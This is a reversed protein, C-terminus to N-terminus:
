LSEITFADAGFRITENRDEFVLGLPAGDQDLVPQVEPPAAASDLVPLLLTLIRLPLRATTSYVLIPAPERQGYNPSVWGEIPSTSGQAIRVGLPRSAFARVFLGRGRSSAARVWGDATASVPLPAFPFRLEIHHEEAGALDDAIVWYGPSKVFAVRRRHVVPDGLRRYADHSADALDFEPTSLFRRLHAGPRQRWAFPGAPEAQGQGDVLVTAHASTGRFHDRFAPDASYTFTGPDVVCPEGFPSVQVSLLDAHGHAGTLPCGLPGVDFVLHHADRRWDSRMVVYGGEAFALSAEKPPTAGVTEFMAVATPGLFWLAEPQMGEAAWAYDTRGFFGAATAFLGRADDPTRPVMPLLSGGDADGIAPMGGDPRRLALLVDLMRQVREGVAASVHLGNRAALMLYHLYIEVTYRQYATTQEFYVGDALVQLHIQEELIGQGLARWRAASGSEPFLVGAYFLGLAEGTLHTNPSSHRSLYREVHSAHAGIGARIDVFLDPTLHTSKRFLFLAWCWSVIRLAAELSSAWNIGLGPPNARMWAQVLGAFAEAYGEDGTTRYAIGLTVLCQQRSLEWVVKSDGVSPVDTPDISSWHVLPSRRGSLPDLRWDVPDGFSLGRYGLLDFRGLRVSEASAVALDRAEPALRAFLAPTSADAAGAFFRGPGSAQFHDLLRESVSVADGDAFRAGRVRLDPGTGESVVDVPEPSPLSRMGKRELWKSAEQRSRDAVEGIGMRLLRRLM